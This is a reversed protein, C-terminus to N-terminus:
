LLRPSLFLLWSRLQPLGIPALGPQGDVRHEKSPSTSVANHSRVRYRVRAITARTVLTVYIVCYLHVSFVPSENAFSPLSAGTCLREGSGLVAPTTQAASLVMMGGKDDLALQPLLLVKSRLLGRKSRCLTGHWNWDSTFTPPPPPLAVELFPWEVVM